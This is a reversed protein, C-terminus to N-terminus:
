KYSTQTVLVSVHKTTTTQKKNINPKTVLSLNYFKIYADPTRIFWQFGNTM